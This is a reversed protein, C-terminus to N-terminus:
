FVRGQIDYDPYKLELIVNKPCQLFRGDPTIRSNFDFTFDSYINTSSVSRGTKQLIKIDRADVVGDVKKLSEYISTIALAEGIELKMSLDQKLVELAKSLIDYKSYSLDSLISFSIGFNVIKADLIDITDNIIKNKNLWTKLNNKLTQNCNILELNSNESVVYINLNRRVEDVDKVIKVRKIKGYKTPMSYALAKYDQETVARGQAAFTQSIKTKLEDTSFNDTQGLIAEENDVLFSNRISRIIGRDLDFENPFSLILNSVNNITRAATNSNAVTNFRYSITLTTNEPGLGLKDSTILKTPDIYEDSVYDRGYLELVTTSPEAFRQNIDTLVARSAGGFQLTTVNNILNSTFRRTVAFPKLINPTETKDESFNPVSKYVVNQSLNEVEYYENGESDFISIIESINTAQMEIKKFRIFDGVTVSETSVDGSIVRGYVKVAYSLPSTESLRAAIIEANTQNVVIDELLSFMKGDGTRFISGKKIVPLYNFDPATGFQSSPIQFFISVVGTTSASGKEKFGIQNGLKVINEYEIATDIFSENVQYDLYYSLVDGIYAVSDIMLSGFSAQNFDQYSDPYYKKAYNLLDQRISNFERSTYKIPVFKKAM